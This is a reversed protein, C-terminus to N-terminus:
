GFRLKMALILGALVFTIGNYLMIPFSGLLFGYAFWLAIGTLFLGYMPTSIGDARKARWIGWAQPVFAVTTLMGAAMGIAEPNLIM